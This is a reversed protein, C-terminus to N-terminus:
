HLHFKNEISDARLNAQRNVLSQFNFIWQFKQEYNM